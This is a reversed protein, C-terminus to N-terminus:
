HVSRLITMAAPCIHEM